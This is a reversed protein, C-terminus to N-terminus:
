TMQGGGEKRRMQSLKKDKALWIQKLWKKVRNHKEGTKMSDASLVESPIAYTKVDVQVESINGSFLDSFRARGQPYLISVDLLDTFQEGMAELVTTVGGSKPPLLNTFESGSQRHKEATFRTGEAFILISTPMQKFKECSKHVTKFDRGRLSPNKKLKASSYRNMFPFDLAWWASGLFPVWLLQKKIFFRLFPIKRNFVWQLIVIDVWSQHNALVMYSKDAALPGDTQVQWNYSQTLRIIGGNISVWNEAILTLVRSFYLRTKELPSVAKLLAVAYILTCSFVTNIVFLLFAISGKLIGPLFSLM